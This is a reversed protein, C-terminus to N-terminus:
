PDSTLHCGAGCGVGWLDGYIVLRITGRLLGVEGIGSGRDGIGTMQGRRTSTFPTSGDAEHTCLM